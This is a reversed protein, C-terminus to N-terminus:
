KVYSHIHSTFFTGPALTKEKCNAWEKYLNLLMIINPSNKWLSPLDWVNYSSIIQNCAIYSDM